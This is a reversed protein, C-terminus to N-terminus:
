SFAVGIAWAVTAVLAIVQILIFWIEAMFEAKEEVASPLRPDDASADTSPLDRRPRTTGIRTIGM